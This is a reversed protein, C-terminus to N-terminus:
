RVPISKGDATMYARKKEVFPPPPRKSYILMRQKAGLYYQKYAIVPDANKFEDPMAMRFPTREIEPLPPFNDSLWNIHTETKHTKGYRYTYEQCLCIGLDSLWRYNEVSERVWIACPHNPHTKRYANALLNDPDLVWHACYLLQATELIMKVVHKDCHAEAAERPDTSLLFINM